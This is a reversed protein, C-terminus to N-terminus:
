PGRQFIGRQGDLDPALAAALKVHLLDVLSGMRDASDGEAFDAGSDLGKELDPKSGRWGLVLVERTVEDRHEVDLNLEAGWGRRRPADDDFWVSFRLLEYNDQWM